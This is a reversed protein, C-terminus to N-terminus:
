YPTISNNAQIRVRQYVLRGLTLTVLCARSQLIVTNNVLMGVDDCENIFNLLYGWVRSQGESMNTSMRCLMKKVSDPKLTAVGVFVQKMQEPFQHLLAKIGMVELGSAIADLYIRRKNLAENLVITELIPKKNAVQLIYM